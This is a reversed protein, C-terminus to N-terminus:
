KEGKRLRPMAQHQQGRAAGFLADLALRDFSVVSTSRAEIKLNPM